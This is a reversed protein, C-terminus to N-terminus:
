QIDGGGPTIRPNMRRWSSICSGTPSTTKRTGDLSYFGFDNRLERIAVSVQNIQDAALGIKAADRVDSDDSDCTFLNTALTIWLGSSLILLCLLIDKRM